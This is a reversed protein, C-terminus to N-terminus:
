LAVKVDYTLDKARQRALLDDYVRSIISTSASRPSGYYESMVEGAIKEAKLLLDHYLKSEETLFSKEEVM